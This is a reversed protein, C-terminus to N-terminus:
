HNTQAHTNVKSRLELTPLDSVAQSPLTGVISCIILIYHMVPLYFRYVCSTNIIPMCQVHGHIFKNRLFYDKYPLWTFNAYLFYPESYMVFNCM